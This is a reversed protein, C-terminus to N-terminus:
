VKEWSAIEGDVLNFIPHLSPNEDNFLTEHRPIDRVKLKKLLHQKEYNIQGITVNIKIQNPTILLKNLSFKYTRNEAEEYIIQLYFNIADLPVNVTQFRLLQPHHKYGKTKGLLVNKALLGERWVALLGMRDLYRPHLSWLRM